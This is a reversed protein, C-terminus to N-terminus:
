YYGPYMYNFSSYNYSWYRGEFYKGAPFTTTMSKEVFTWSYIFCSSLLYSHLTPWYGFTLRRFTTYWQFPAIMSYQLKNIITYYEGWSIPIIKICVKFYSTKPLNEEITALLSALVLLCTLAGMFRIHVNLTYIIWQLIRAVNCRLLM